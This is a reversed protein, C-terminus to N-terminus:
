KIQIRLNVIPQKAQQQGIITRSSARRSRPVRALGDFLLSCLKEPFCAYIFRGPDVPRRSLFLIGLNFCRHHLRHRGV